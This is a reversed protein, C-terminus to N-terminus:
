GGEFCCFLLVNGVFVVSFTGKRFPVRREFKANKSSACGKGEKKIEKQVKEKRRHYWRANEPSDQVRAGRMRRGGGEEKEKTERDTM